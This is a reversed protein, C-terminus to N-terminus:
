RDRAPLGRQALQIVFGAIVILGVVIPLLQSWPQYARVTNGVLAAIMGFLAANMKYIHEVPWVRRHWHRPFAWRVLDYSLMVGLSGISSVVVVRAQDTSMLALRALPIAIAAAVLTWALDPWAPGLERTRAVRVGSVLQYLVLATLVAFLPLFRFLFLGLAATGTVGVTLWVFRWGARRHARDGKPLLLIAVGILIAVTGAGIHLLLNLRHAPTM